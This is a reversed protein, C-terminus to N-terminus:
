LLPYTTIAIRIGEANQGVGSYQNVDFYVSANNPLYGTACCSGENAGGNIELANLTNGNAVIRMAFPVNGDQPKATFTAVFLVASGSQNQFDANVGNRVLFNNGGSQQTTLNTVNTWTNNPMGTLGTAFNLLYSFGPRSQLDRNADLIIAQSANNQPLRVNTGSWELISTGQRRLRGGGFGVIDPGDNAANYQIYHNNDPSPKLYLPTNNLRCNNLNATDITPSTGLVIAGSGTPTSATGITITGATTLPSNTVTLFGPVALAFSTVGTGPLNEWSVSNGAGLTLVQTSTGPTVSTITKSANAYLVTNATLDSLTLASMTPNTALVIAGSGTPTTTPNVTITGTTTIPSGTINLISSSTSVAVSQVGTPVPDAFSVSNSVGATLVQGFSGSGVTVIEKNEDAYLLRQAAINTLTLESITPNTALVIAGTGTPPSATNITITGSGIIPSGSVTLFSPVIVGVSTVTGGNAWSIGGGGSSVLVQGATGQAISTLTKNVDAFVLTNATLNSLTLNSITPNTSLVISGTGTPTSLTNIAITGSTTIPSGSVTFLSAPATVGVSTVTGGGIPGWSVAGATGARLVQGSTGRPLISTIAGFTDTYLVTNGELNGIDVNSPFGEGDTTKATFSM